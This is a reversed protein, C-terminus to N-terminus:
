SPLTLKAWIPLHDSAERALNSRHVGAEAIEIDETVIIRDLPVVPMSAHFSPGCAAISHGQEFARVVELAADIAVIGAVGRVQVNVFVRM